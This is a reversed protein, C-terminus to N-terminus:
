TSGLAPFRSWIGPPLWELRRERKGRPYEPQGFATQTIEVGVSHDTRAPIVVDGRDTGLSRVPQDTLRMLAIPDTHPLSVSL